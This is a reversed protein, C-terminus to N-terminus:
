GALAAARRAAIRARLRTRARAALVIRPYYANRSLHDAWTISMNADGVENAYAYFAETARAEMAKLEEDTDFGFHNYATAKLAEDAWPNAGTDSDMTDTLLNYLTM